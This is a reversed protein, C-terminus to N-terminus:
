DDMRLIIRIIAKFTGKAPRLKTKKKRKEEEM